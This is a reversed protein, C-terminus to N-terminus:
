LLSDELPMEDGGFWTERHPWAELIEAKRQTLLATWFEVEGMGYADVASVSATVGGFKKQRLEKARRWDVMLIAYRYEVKETPFLQFVTLWRLFEELNPLEAFVSRAAENLAPESEATARGIAPKGQLLSISVAPMSPDLPWDGDTVAVGRSALLSYAPQSPACRVDYGNDTLCQAVLSAVRAAGSDALGSIEVRVRQSKGEMM